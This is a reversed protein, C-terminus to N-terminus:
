KVRRLVIQAFMAARIGVKAIIWELSSVLNYAWKPV